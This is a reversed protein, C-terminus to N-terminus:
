HKNQKVKRKNRHIQAKICKPSYMFVTNYKFMVMRCLVRTARSWGERYSFLV